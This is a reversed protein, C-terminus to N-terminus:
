QSTIRKRSENIRMHSKKKKVWMFLKKAQNISYPTIEGQMM